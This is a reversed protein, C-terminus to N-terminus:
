DLRQTMLTLDELQLGHSSNRANGRLWPKVPGESSPVAGATETVIMSLSWAPKIGRMHKRQQEGM